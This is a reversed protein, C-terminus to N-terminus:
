IKETALVICLCCKMVKFCGLKKGMMVPAGDTACSTINEMSIQAKDIHNKLKNYINIATTTTKLAECLLKEETFEGNDIYRVYAM